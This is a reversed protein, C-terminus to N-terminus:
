IKNIKSTGNTKEVPKTEGGTVKSKIKNVFNTILTVINNKIENADVPKQQNMPIEQNKGSEGSSGTTGKKSKVSSGIKGKSEGSSGIKGKSEGSSGIKGKKGSKPQSNSLGSKGSIGNSSVATGSSGNTSIPQASIPQSASIENLFNNYNLLM